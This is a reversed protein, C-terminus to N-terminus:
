GTRSASSIQMSSWKLLPRKWNPTPRPAEGKSSAASPTSGSCAAFIYASDYLAAGGASLSFSTREKRLTGSLNLNYQQTQEPGKTSQFANRANLAGDRFTFDMSGRMPGLGPQTAIDVFAHGASHNEAGFMASAFRISRIQSKPPLKGGRFGDVRITAGPGAMEKLVKEMEDPDDPLAEIQDKSLVNGFRESKPDSAAIAPDRGVAVSEAVREIPLMVERRNDGMRVRVDTLTRSEFGPFTVSIAYRGVPVNLATAVGQGDSTVGPVLLDQTSPEIGKVVVAANPIVAGSPDKVIVRLTGTPRVQAAAPLAGATVAALALSAILRKM